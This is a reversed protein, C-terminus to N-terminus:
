TFVEELDIQMSALAGGGYAVRNSTAPMVFLATPRDWAVAAGSSIAARVPQVLPVTLVSAVAACSQFCQFLQGSIKFFDGANLGGDTAIQLSQDGRAITAALTPSGRMTGTPVPRIFNYLACRDMGGALRSFFAEAEGGQFDLAPPLTLSISWRAGPFEISETTGNFPSRFQIVTKTSAWEMSSPKLTAPYTHTTM